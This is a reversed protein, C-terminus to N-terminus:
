HAVARMDESIRASLKEASTIADYDGQSQHQRLATEVKRALEPFVYSKNMERIVGDILQQRQSADVAMDAQHPAGPIQQASAPAAQLACFLLTGIFLATRPLRSLYDTKM